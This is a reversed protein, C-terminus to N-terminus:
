KTHAAEQRTMYFRRIAAVAPGFNPYIQTQAGIWDPLRQRISPRSYRVDMLVVSAYDGSHRIARGISQNVAKACLNDCLLSGASKGKVVGLKKDLYKMKEKLEPSTINPYPMGVMVVCRALNDSFNIGESMKGGVVSLLIAGTMTACTAVCTQICRSYDNLVKDVLSAKKPEEFVTKRAALRDLLGSSQWRAHMQRLYNYSPFFCVLGGPVVTSINVIARGAEDMLEPTERNHFTFDFTMRTPGSSLIIPLIHEPPIVHGCSFEVIRETKVGSALLLQQKLDDIPQMTGGAIILSRCDQVIDAFHVAPNLMMFRLSSCAVTGEKTFVVRGNTDANTLAFLFSEVRGLPSGHVRNNDNLNALPQSASDCCGKKMSVSQLFGSLAASSERKVTLPQYMEVFGFLKRSIKSKECYKQVKFLNINDMGAAFLFDNISKVEAGPAKITQLNPNSGVKGGLVRIFCSLIFILQTIHMINKAKLRCRYRELYQSLQSHACCLQAGNIESSHIAMITDMLNHAEDVIVIQGKLSLRAACRTPGHLLCQYPLVVLQAAPVASRSTYYPCASLERGRTCAEEVDRIQVLMEAQFVRLAAPRRFPCCVKSHKQKDGKREKRGKQLELCADNIMQLSGLRRVDENVCLNQRSALAVLRVNNAFPSRQVEHIFQSLQSHTRSCYYIKTVHVEDSDEDGSCEENGHVDGNDSDYDDLLTLDDDDISSACKGDNTTGDGSIVEKSIAMLKETEDEIHKRKKIFHPNNSNKIKQLQEERKQRKACEERLVQLKEKEEKERRQVEIWDPEAGPKTSVEKVEADIEGGRHKQHKEVLTALLKADEQKKHEEFDRLWTLAGCILSLSKGTGTPSEFIGVKEEELVRYLVQMFETQIGYPAFPFPFEKPISHNVSDDCTEPNLASKEARLSDENDSWM